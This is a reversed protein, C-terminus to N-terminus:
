FEEKELIERMKKLARHVMVRINGEKKDLMGAIERYEFGEIFSLLIVQQQDEPLRLIAKRITQQTFEAEVMTEPDVVQSDYNIESNLYTQDKKTRYYDIVLNHSIRMLWGVFPTSTRKYRPLARWARIFVEQMLDRADEVSSTRYLIHRYVRDAYEDYLNGFAETDGRVARDVLEDIHTSAKNKDDQM